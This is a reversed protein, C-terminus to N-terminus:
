KDKESLSNWAFVVATISAFAACFLMIAPFYEGAYACEGAVGITFFDCIWVFMFLARWIIVVSKRM